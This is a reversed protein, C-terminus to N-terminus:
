KIEQVVMGNIVRPEFYSSKPPLIKENDAYYCIQKDSLPYLMLGVPNVMDKAVKKIGKFREIGPVYKIGSHMKIDTIGLLKKLVIENVLYYDLLVKHKKKYKTLIEKKWSLMYWQDDIFMTIKYKESPKKKSKLIKVTFYESLLAMFHAPRIQSGLDIVRNFDNIVLQDFPMMVTLISELKFPVMQKQSQYWLIRAISCRHHGDAIYAKTVKKRFMIAILELEEGSNIKWFRHLEKKSKLDQEIDPKSKIRTEAFQRFGKFPKFGLLVPKIFAKRELTLQLQEQEKAALTKEHPLIKDNLLDDIGVAAVIGYHSKKKGIIQYLYIGESPDKEYFGNEVFQSYNYKVNSFFSDLDAILNTKPFLGQFPILNM